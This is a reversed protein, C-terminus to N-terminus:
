IKTWLHFVPSPCWWTYPYCPCLLSYDHLVSIMPWLEFWAWSSQNLSAWFNTVDHSPSVNSSTCLFIRSPVKMFTAVATTFCRHTEHFYYCCNHFAPTKWWLLLMLPSVGTVIMFTTLLLLPSVCTGKMFTNVAATLCQNRWSLLLLPPSVSTDKMFTTVAATFCWHRDSPFTFSDLFTPGITSTVKWNGKEECMGVGGTILQM